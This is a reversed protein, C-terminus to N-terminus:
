SVICVVAFNRGDEREEFDDVHVNYALDCVNYVVYRVMWPYLDNMIIKDGSICNAQALDSYEAPSGPLGTVTEAIPVCSEYKEALAVSSVSLVAFILFVRWM